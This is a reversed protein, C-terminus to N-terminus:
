KGLTTCDDPAFQFGMFKMHKIVVDRGLAKAMLDAPNLSTDIKMLKMRGSRIAGQMWMWRLEMHKTASLGSRELIGIAATADLVMTINTDIRVDKLCNRFGFLETGAKTAAVLEAEATSLTVFPQAKSWVKLCHSGRM